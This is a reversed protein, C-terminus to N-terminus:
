LAVNKLMVPSNTVVLLFDSPEIGCKLFIRWSRYGSSVGGLEDSWHMNKFIWRLITRGDLAEQM